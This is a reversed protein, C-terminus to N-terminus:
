WKDKPCHKTAVKTMLFVSCGCTNLEQQSKPSVIEGIDRQFFPTGCWEVGAWVRRDECSSCIGRVRLVEERPRVLGGSARKAYTKTARYARKVAKTATGGCCGM